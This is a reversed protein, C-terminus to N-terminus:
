YIKKKEKEPKNKLNNIFLFKKDIKYKLFDYIAQTGLISGGMGIVRYNNFSKYKKLQKRTYNYSYNKNLSKIIESKESLLKKFIQIIKKNKRETNKKNQFKKSFFFKILM